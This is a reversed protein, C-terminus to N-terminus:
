FHCLLFTRADLRSTASEVLVIAPLDQQAIALTARTLGVLEVCDWEAGVENDLVQFPLVGVLPGLVNCQQGALLVCEEIRHLRAGVGHVVVHVHLAVLDVQDHRSLDDIHDDAFHQETRFVFKVDGVVVVQGADVVVVSIDFLQTTARQLQELQILVLVAVDDASLPDHAELEGDLM